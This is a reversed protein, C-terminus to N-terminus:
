GRPSHALRRRLDAASALPSSCAGNACLYAAAAPTDPFIDEGRPAPGEHRDWWEVLKHATPIRLAEAFMARATADSKSGVVTVHLPEARVEDDALLLGAVYFGRTATVEPSAAWQLARRAAELRGPQGTERGLAALFRALNVNEDFQPRPAPFAAGTTDSSAFGPANGRRFHAAIFDAAATARALWEPRQTVQHLALFARGM